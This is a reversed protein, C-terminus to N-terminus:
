KRKRGIKKRLTKGMHEPKVHLKSHKHKRGVKHRKAM